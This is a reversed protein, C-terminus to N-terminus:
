NVTSIKCFFAVPAEPSSVGIVSAGYAEDVTMYFEIIDGEYCGVLMNEVSAFLAGSGITFTFPDDTWYQTNLGYLELEYIVDIDNSRLVETTTPTSIGEFNYLTYTISVTSGNSIKNNSERGANYYTSIYRFTTQGSTSYFDPNTEQSVKAESESILVPTHSSSTLYSIISDRQEQNVEETDNCSMLALISALLITSFIRM